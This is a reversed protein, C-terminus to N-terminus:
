IPSLPRDAPLSHAQNGTRFLTLPTHQLKLYTNIFEGDDITASEHNDWSHKSPPQEVAAPTNAVALVRDNQGKVAEAVTRLLVTMLDFIYACNRPIRLYGAGVQVARSNDIAPLFYEHSQVLANNITKECCVLLKKLAALALPLGDSPPQAKPLGEPLPGVKTSLAIRQLLTRIQKALEYHENYLSHLATIVAQVTSSSSNLGRHNINEFVKLETLALNAVALHSRCEAAKKEVISDAATINETKTKHPREFEVRSSAHNKNLDNLELHLKAIWATTAQRSTREM